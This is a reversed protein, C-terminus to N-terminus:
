AAPVTVMFREASEWVVIDPRHQSVIDWLVDKSWVFVVEVFAASLMATLGLDFAYSDGFLVLKRRDPAAENRVTYSSGGYRGTLEFRQNNAVVEGNPAPLLFEDTPAQEFLHVPLDHQLHRVEVALRAAAFDGECGIANLLCGVAAACGSATWHSNHRHYAPAVAKLAQLEAEPYVVRASHDLQKLLLKLPRGAGNQPQDPWRKEPYVVQKEPAVFNWLGVGRISAEAQRRTLLANWAALWSPDVTLEGLYQREWRNAGNSIFLYGDAGAVVVANASLTGIKLCSAPHGVGTRADLELDRRRIEEATLRM